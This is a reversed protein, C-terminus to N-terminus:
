REPQWIMIYEKEGTAEDVDESLIEFGKRLYFHVACTNKQYVKLQLKNRIGKIHNLLQTGIGCSQCEKSVFIGEIYEGNLGVFGYIMNENEYVYVEALPLMSKVMDFNHIWYEAPIFAHAKINCDLWLDTVRDIDESHLDRIFSKLIIGRNEQERIDMSSLRYKYDAANGIESGCNM